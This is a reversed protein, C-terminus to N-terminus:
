RRRGHHRKGRPEVDHRKGRPKTHHREGHPRAHDHKGLPDVYHHHHKGLPDVYHHHRKPFGLAIHAIPDHRPTTAAAAPVVPVAVLSASVLAAVLSRTHM